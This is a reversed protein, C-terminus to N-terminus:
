FTEDIENYLHKSNTSMKLLDNRSKLKLVHLCIPYIHNFQDYISGIKM